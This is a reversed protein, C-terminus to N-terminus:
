ARDELAMESVLKGEDRLKFAAGQPKGGQWTALGAALLREIGAPEKVGVIRAVVQSDQTLEIVEAQAREVYHSLNAQFEQFSVQM